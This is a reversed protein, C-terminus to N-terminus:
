FDLAYFEEREEKTMWKAMAKKRDQSLKGVQVYRGDEYSFLDNATFGMDKGPSEIIETIREIFRKGKRDLHLHIDFSVVDVVQEAAVRENSFSGASLLANRLSLVLAKTNKAHHTFLTFLSGTQGSEVMWAAVRQSAVEGIISVAGDTKKQVELGEFGGIEDTERFTVINRDPYWKRLHLEFAMELIRLTYEKPICEILAMLLTTKGCGQMGTIGTVQCGKMMFSMFATLREAGEESFLAKLDRKGSQGLKRIFFMWSEAFDPRAVVVRSHDAMEHVIYGRERSLEGPQNFRILNRCIRELEEESEFDLFRLGVSRGKYFIWVSKYGGNDGSVGGSVGDINMDRLEDIVGLGKFFAYVKTSLLLMKEPFTFSVSARKFAKEIEEGSIHNKGDALLHNEDVLANFAEKEHDRKLSFLLKDFHYEGKFLFTEDINSENLDLLKLLSEFIFDIVYKKAGDDGIGCKSLNERLLKKQTTLRKLEREDLNMEYLNERLIENIHNKILEM